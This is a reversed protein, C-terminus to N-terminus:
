RDLRVLEVRRNNQRGEATDNSDVPKTEGLGVAELRDAAIGHTAILYDRAAKARQESLTRNALDDGTADTHGEIRIRLAPHERLMTGIEELTPTSEPRIRASNVAFLIGRTAVRGDAALRDYLDRGGEAVRIAGVYVPEEASAFYVNELYLGGSRVFEANPANSVRREGVFVKAHRGDVMLRIPVLKQQVEPSRNVAQVAGRGPARDVGTGQAAGIRLVNGELANWRRGQPPAATALVLQHNTHTVYVDVEITFRGPLERPLPIRLAAGRPGTNRLLRRGQWDVVEWTGTVLELRRPFDGVDDAAFDEFFLVTEGPVFDYNAWVGKGPAGEERGALAAGEEPNSVPKGADDKLIEGSDDTLVVEEGDKKAREICSLDDFVCRVKGAVLRDVERLTEREVARKAVDKVKRLIQGEAPPAGTVALLAGMVGATWRGRERSM